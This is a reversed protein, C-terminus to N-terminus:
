LHIDQTQVRISQQRGFYYEFLNMHMARYIKQQFKHFEYIIQEGNLDHFTM